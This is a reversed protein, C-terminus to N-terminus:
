IFRLAAFVGVQFFLGLKGLVEEWSDRAVLCSDRIRGVQFFLGLKRLASTAM